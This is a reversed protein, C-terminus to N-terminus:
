AARAGALAEALRDSGRAIGAHFRVGADPNEAPTEDRKPRAAVPKDPIAETVAAAIPAFPKANLAHYDLADIFAAYEDDREAHAQARQVGYIITAHDLRNMARAIQPYSHNCRRAVVFIAQRLRSIPALRSRGMIVSVPVGSMRSAIAVIDAVRARRPIIKGNIM